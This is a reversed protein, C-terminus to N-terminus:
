NFRFGAKELSVDFAVWEKPNGNKTDDWALGRTDKLQGYKVVFDFREKELNELLALYETIKAPQAEAIDANVDDIKETYKIILEAFKKVYEYRKKM